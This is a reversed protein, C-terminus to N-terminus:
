AILARHHQIKFVWLRLCDDALQHKIRIHQYFIETRARHLAPPQPRVFQEFEIRAEDHQADTTVALGAGVAVARAKAHYCFGHAAQAVQSGLWAAHRHADAHTNAVRQSRQM